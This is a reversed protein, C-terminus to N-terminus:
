SFPSSILQMGSFSFFSMSAPALDFDAFSATSFFEREVEFELVLVV